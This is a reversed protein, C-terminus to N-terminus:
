RRASPSSTTATASRWCCPRWARRRASSARTTTPSSAPATRLASPPRASARSACATPRSSPRSRTKRADGTYVITDGGVIAFTGAAASAPALVLLPSRSHCARTLVPGGELRWPRPVRDRADPLADRARHVHLHASRSPPPSGCRSGRARACSANRFLRSFSVSALERPVTRRKARKFPCSSGRCSLTVVAGKPAVRVVLTQLRTFGGAVAWRNTVLAPVVRWTEAPQDCNEDTANGRVELAGPRIAANADDCDVPVAFGDRDADRNVDDRGNCDEDVGNGFLEPAGPRIAANTDNCDVSGAFGDGDSDIGTECEAIIDTFDNTVTDTGAGCAIREATGDNARIKDDGGEGFYDDPGGRGDLTDNGQGGALVDGAGGGSLQDVGAGGAISQPVTLDASSAFSDDGGKLDVAIMRIPALPCTVSTATGACPAATTLNTGTIVIDTASQLTTLNEVTDDGTIELVGAIPDFEVTAAASAAGPALGLIGAALLLCRFATAM